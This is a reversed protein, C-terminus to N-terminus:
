DVVIDARLLMAEPITLGIKRAAAPNVALVFATPQEIPLDGPKAGKLIKSVLVAIHRYCVVVRSGYSVLGGEEVTEPWEHIAPLRMRDMEEIFRRRLGNLMASALFQVGEVKAQEITAMAAPVKDPTPVDVFLADLKLSRAALKLKDMEGPLMYTQDAVVAIRTARPVIEHLVEMRKTDLLHSLISLGTTNGDPRAMSSVLKWAVLDDSMAVIPLEKTAKQAASVGANGFPVLIRAGAKVLDSALGALRKPDGEAFAVQTRYTRGEEQGLRTMDRKFTPVFAEDREGGARLIGILPPPQQAHTETPTFAAPLLLPTALLSRRKMERALISSRATGM